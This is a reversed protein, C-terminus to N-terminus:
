AFSASRPFTSMEVEAVKEEGTDYDDIYGGKYENTLDVGFPEGLSKLWYTTVLYKGSQWHLIKV